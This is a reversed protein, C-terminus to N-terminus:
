IIDPSSKEAWISKGDELTEIPTRGCYMKRSSYPSQQLLEDMRRSGETVRGNFM